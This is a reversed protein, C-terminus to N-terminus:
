VLVAEFVVGDVIVVNMVVGVEFMKDPFEEVETTDVTGDDADM